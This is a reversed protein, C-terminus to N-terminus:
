ERHTFRLCMKTRVVIWSSGLLNWVPKETSGSQNAKASFTLIRVKQTLSALFFDIQCSFDSNLSKLVKEHTNIMTCHSCRTDMYACVHMPETYTKVGFGTIHCCALIKDFFDGQFTLFFYSNIGFFSFIRLTPASCRIARFNSVVLFTLVFDQIFLEFKM